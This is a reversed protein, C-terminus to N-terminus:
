RASDELLSIIDERKYKGNICDILHKIVTM